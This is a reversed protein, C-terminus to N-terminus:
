FISFRSPAKQLPANRDLRKRYKRWNRRPQKWVETRRFAHFDYRASRTKM